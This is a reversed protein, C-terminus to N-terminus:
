PNRTSACFERAPDDAQHNKKKRIKHLKKSYLSKSRTGDERPVFLLAEPHLIRRRTGHMASLGDSCAIGTDQLRRLYRFVTRGSWGFRRSEPYNLERHKLEILITNVSSFTSQRDPPGFRALVRAVRRMREALHKRQRGDGPIALAERTVRPKPRLNPSARNLLRLRILLSKVPHQPSRHSKFWDSM